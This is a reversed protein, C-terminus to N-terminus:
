HRSRLVPEPMQLVVPELKFQHGPSWAPVKLKCSGDKVIYPSIIVM